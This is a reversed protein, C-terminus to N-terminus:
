PIVRVLKLTEHFRVSSGRRLQKRGKRACCGICLKKTLSFVEFLDYTAAYGRMNVASKASASEVSRPTSSESQHVHEAPPSATPRASHLARFPKVTSLRHVALLHLLTSSLANIFELKLTGIVGNQAGPNDASPAATRLRRCYFSVCRPLAVGVGGCFLNVHTYNVSRHTKM